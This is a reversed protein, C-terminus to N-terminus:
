KKPLEFVFVSGGDPNDEVWIRGGHFEIIKKAIALGLGTGKVGAKQRRIFRSFIGEKDEDKVGPGFDKFAVKYSNSTDLADIELRKGDPAYKVANSLLNSVVEELMPNAVIPLPARINNVVEIIGEYLPRNDRVVEDILEKLDLAKKEMKDMSELKLLASANEIIEVLKSASKKVLKMEMDDPNDLLRVEAIGSIIGAPNILDHRIIDNFLENLKNAEELQRAHLKLKEESDKRSTIERSVDLHVLSGDHWTIAQNRVEYWRNTGPKKLEWELAEKSEGKEDFLDPNKCFSCPNSQGYFTSYCKRGVVDGYEKRLVENLFLVEYSDMDAVYVRADLNNLVAMLAELSRKLSELAWKLETNERKLVEFDGRLKKVVEIRDM